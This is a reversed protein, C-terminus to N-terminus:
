APNTVFFSTSALNGLRLDLLEPPLPLALPQHRPHVLPIQVHMLPHQPQPINTPLEPYTAVNGELPNQDMTTQKRHTSVRINYGQMPMALSFRQFRAFTKPNLGGISTRATSSLSISLSFSPILTCRAYTSEKILELNTSVQAGVLLAFRWAM